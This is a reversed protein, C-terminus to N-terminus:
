QFAIRQESFFSSYFNGGLFIYENNKQKGSFANFSLFISKM